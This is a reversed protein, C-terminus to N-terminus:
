EYNGRRLLCQISMHQSSSGLLYFRRPLIKYKRRNRIGIVMFCKEPESSPTKIKNKIFHKEENVNELGNKLLALRVLLNRSCNGNPFPM